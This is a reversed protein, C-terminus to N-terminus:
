KSGLFLESKDSMMGPTGLLWDICGVVLLSAASVVTLGPPLLGSHCEMHEVVLLLLLCDIQMGPSVFLLVVSEIM